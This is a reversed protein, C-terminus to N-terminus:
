ICHGWNVHESDCWGELCSLLVWCIHLPYYPFYNCVQAHGECYNEPRDVPVRRHDQLPLPLVSGHTHVAGIGWVITQLFYRYLVLYDLVLLANSMYALSAVIWQISSATICAQNIDLTFNTANSTDPLLTPDM